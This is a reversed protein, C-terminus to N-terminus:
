INNFILSNRSNYERMPNLFYNPTFTNQVLEDRSLEGFNIVKALYRNNGQVQVLTVNEPQIYSHCYKQEGLLLIFELLRSFIHVLQQDTFEFDKFKKLNYLSTQGAAFHITNREDEFHNPLISLERL